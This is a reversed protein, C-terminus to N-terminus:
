ASVNTLAGQLQPNTCIVEGNWLLFQVMAGPQNVPRRWETLDFESGGILALEIVTENLMEIRSNSTNPGDATKDDVIWPIGDFSLNKFGANALMDDKQGQGAMFRQNVMCLSWYRDYQESRSRIITPAHAGFTCASALSRLATLTLTATSSNIQANLWTNTSRTLGAYVTTASGADVIAALGTLQKDEADTSGSSGESTSLDTGLIDALEMRAQEARVSLENAVALPSNMKILTRRDISIPVQYEKVELAGNKVSENPSVDVIDYGRFAGGNTLKQYMWPIEVQTGGQYSRRNAANLRFWLANSGYITDTIYPLIVRRSLANMENTGIPTPAM